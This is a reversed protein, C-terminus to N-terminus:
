SLGLSELLKRIEAANSADPALELYTKLSLKANEIDGTRLRSFGLKLWPDPWNPKIRTTLTYYSVAEDFMGNSFYIEGIGFPLSAYKPYLALAKEFEARATAPDGRRLAIEGTAALTKTALADGNMDPNTERVKDLVLGYEELAKDYEGMEKYCNGINFHVQFHNPHKDLFQRYLSLAENCNKDEFLRNGREILGLDEEADPGKPQAKRLVSKVAANRGIQSVYTEEIRPRYGELTLIIKWVGSGLGLIGWKGKRDTVVERLTESEIHLLAVRVGPLPNGAEDRVEGTLRVNGMGEQVLASSGALSGALCVAALIKLAGQIM